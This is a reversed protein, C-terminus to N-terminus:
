KDSPDQFYQVIKIKYRYQGITTHAQMNDKFLPKKGKRHATGSHLSSMIQPKEILRRGETSLLSTFVTSDCGHRASIQWTDEAFKVVPSKM